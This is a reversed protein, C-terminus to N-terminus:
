RNVVSAFEPCARVMLENEPQTKAGDCARFSEGFLYEYVPSGNIDYLVTLIASLPRSMRAAAAARLPYIVRHVQPAM